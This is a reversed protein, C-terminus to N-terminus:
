INENLSTKLYDLVREQQRKVAHEHTIFDHVTSLEYQLSIEGFRIDHKEIPFHKTVMFYFSMDPNHSDPHKKSFVIDQSNLIIGLEEIVGRKFTEFPTEQEHRESGPLDIELPHNFLKVERQIVVIKEGVYVLGSVKLFPSSGIFTDADIM